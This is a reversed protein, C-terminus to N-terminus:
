SGDPWRCLFAYFGRLPVYPMSIILIGEFSHEGKQGRVQALYSFLTRRGIGVTRCVDGATKDSHLDLIRAQELKDPDTRPRGGTRGRAKAAARGAATREAKLEREMQAMAGMIALFCRGTATATDIHERLSILEIERQELDRVVELLHVRSRTMRSLETIVVTDGPRVYAMLQDWGPCNATIGSVQDMFTKMCGAQTLADLQADLKQGPTSVRAYGINCVRGETAM